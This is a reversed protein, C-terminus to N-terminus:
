KLDGLDAYNIDVEVTTDVISLTIVDTAAFRVVEAAPTLYSKKM